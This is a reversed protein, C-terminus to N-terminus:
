GRQMYISTVSSIAFPVPSCRLGVASGVHHVVQGQTAYRREQTHTSKCSRSYRLHGM